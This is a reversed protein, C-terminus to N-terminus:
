DLQSSASIKLDTNDIMEKAEMIAM